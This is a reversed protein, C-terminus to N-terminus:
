GAAAAPVRAWIGVAPLCRLVGGQGVDDARLRAALTEVGLEERTAAGAAVLFPEASRLHDALAEYGVWDPGGGLPAEEM